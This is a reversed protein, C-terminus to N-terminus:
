CSIDYTSYMLFHSMEDGIVARICAYAYIMYTDLPRHALYSIAVM